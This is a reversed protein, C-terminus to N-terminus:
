LDLRLWSNDFDGDEGSICFGCDDDLTSEFSYLNLSSRESDSSACTSIWSNSFFDAEEDHWQNEEMRIKDADIEDQTALDIAIRMARLTTHCYMSAILYSHGDIDDTSQRQIKQREFVVDLAEQKLQRRFRRANPEKCEVGRSSHITDDISEPNNRLLHITKLVDLHFIKYDDDSNWRSKREEESWDNRNPLYEVEVEHNFSVSKKRLRLFPFNSVPYDRQFSAPSGSRDASIRPIEFLLSEEVAFKNLPAM